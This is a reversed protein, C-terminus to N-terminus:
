NGGLRMGRGIFVRRSGMNTTPPQNNTHGYGYRTYSNRVGNNITFNGLKIMIKEFIKPTKEVLNPGGERPLIERLFYYFHGSLLGMIDGWLSQGMILHLFILAFPLQYGKVTFFYISVHSWAERRSWYYIIAFLLSNGLFPYGRPWYFLISIVSLFVCHITIFYLYSGPTSFMENKELSSSFQAFLSMFFVWSLSFNGVYFFNFFIRWIQYKNYILNWDLLIHVINLLNCTILLTVFFIILIMYKTVNPLNNYWVEPGSLDM